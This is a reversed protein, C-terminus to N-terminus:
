YDTVEFGQLRSAVIFRATHNQAFHQASSDLVSSLQRVKRLDKIDFQACHRSLIGSITSKTPTIM